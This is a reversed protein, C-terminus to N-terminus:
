SQGAPRPPPPRRGDVLHFVALVPHCRLMRPGAFRMVARMQERPEARYCHIPCSVCTPKDPGYPCRDLRRDAYDALATCAACLGDTGHHAACYLEVMARVTRRERELRRSAGGMVADDHRWGAAVKVGTL